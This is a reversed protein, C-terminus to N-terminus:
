IKVQVDQLDQHAQCVQHVLAAWPGRLAWLTKELSDERAKAEKWAQSDLPDGSALGQHDKSFLAM